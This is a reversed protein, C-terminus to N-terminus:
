WGNLRKMAERYMALSQYDATGFADTWPPGPPPLTVETSDEQGVDQRVMPLLKTMDPEPGNGAVVLMNSPIDPSISNDLTIARVWRFGSRLTGVTRMVFGKSAEDSPQAPFIMNAAFIGNPTLLTSYKKVTEATLLYWPVSIDGSFADAVIVDYGPTLHILAPRADELDVHLHTSTSLGFGAEAAKLVAPDIEVVDVDAAPHRALYEDAVHFGGGGIMLMRTPTAVLLDLSRMAKAYGLISRQPADLFAAAHIGKNIQLMRAPRGDMQGQVIAVYGYASPFEQTTVPTAAGSFPLLAMSVGLMMNTRSRIRRGFILAAVCLLVGGSGYLLAALSAIPLLFYGTLYTGVLSGLTGTASILGATHGAHSLETMSLRLVAPSIAALAFAPPALLLLAAVPAAFVYPLHAVLAMVDPAFRALLFCWVGAVAFLGGIFRVDPFRDAAIGGFWAGFALAVLIVGILNTWILISSGLYPAVIRSGLLELSMVAVGSVFASLVPAHRKM